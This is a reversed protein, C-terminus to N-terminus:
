EEGGEQSAASSASDAQASSEEASLSVSYFSFDSTSSDCYFTYLLGDAQYVYIYLEYNKDYSTVSYVDDFGATMEM